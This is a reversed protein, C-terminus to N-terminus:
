APTYALHDFSVVVVRGNKHTAIATRLVSDAVITWDVNAPYLDPGLQRCETNM